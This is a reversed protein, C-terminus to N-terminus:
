NNDQPDQGHWELVARIGYIGAMVFALWTQWIMGNSIIMVTGLVLFFVLFMLTEKM